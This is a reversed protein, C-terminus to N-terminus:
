VDIALDGLSKRLKIDDASEEVFRRYASVSKFQELVKTKDCLADEREGIYDPYSSYKWDEANKVLSATEANIHIYASLHKLYRDNDVRVARFRDQFVHGVHEYKANFYMSYSTALKLILNSIPVNSCQHMLLHFHNPMTCYCLLEFVGADFYDLRLRLKAVGGDSGIALAGRPKGLLVSLRLLFNVYDQHDRFIDMKGNGRNYLHYIEGAAFAKYDRNNMPMCESYCTALAGRPTPTGLPARAM